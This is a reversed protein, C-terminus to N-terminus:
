DQFEDKESSSCVECCLLARALHKLFSWVVWCLITALFVASTQAAREPWVINLLIECLGMWCVPCLISDGHM